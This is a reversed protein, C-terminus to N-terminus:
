TTIEDDDDFCHLEKACFRNSKFKYQKVKAHLKERM